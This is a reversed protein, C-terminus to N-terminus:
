PGCTLKTYYHMAPIFHMMAGSGRLLPHPWCLRQSASVQLSRFFVSIVLSSFHIYWGSILQSRVEFDEMKVIHGHDLEKMVKIETFLNETSM